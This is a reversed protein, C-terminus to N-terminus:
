YIENIFELLRGAFIAWDATKTHEVIKNIKVFAAPNNDGYLM